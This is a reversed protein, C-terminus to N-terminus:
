STNCGVVVLLLEDTWMGMVAEILHLDAFDHALM